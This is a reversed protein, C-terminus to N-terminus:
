FEMPFKAMTKDLHLVQICVDFDLLSYVAFAHYDYNVNIKGNYIKISYDAIKIVMVAIVLAFYDIRYSTNVRHSNLQLMVTIQYMQHIPVGMM